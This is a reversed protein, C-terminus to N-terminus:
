KNTALYRQRYQSNGRDWIMPWYCRDSATSGGLLAQVGKELFLLDAPGRGELPILVMTCGGIRGLHGYGPLPFTAIGMQFRFVRGECGVPEFFTRGARLYGSNLGELAHQLDGGGAAICQFKFHM